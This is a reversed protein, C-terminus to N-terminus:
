KSEIALLDSVDEELLVHYYKKAYCMRVKVTNSNHNYNKSLYDNFSLWDIAAAATSVHENL